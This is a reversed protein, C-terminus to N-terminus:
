SSARARRPAPGPDPGDAPRVRVRRGPQSAPRRPLRRRRRPGPDRRRRRAGAHVRVDVLRDPVRCPRRRRARISGRHLQGRGRALQDLAEGHDGRMWVERFDPRVDVADLGDVAALVPAAVFLVPGTRSMGPFADVGDIVDVTMDIDRGNVFGADTAGAVDVEAGVLVAPVHGDASPTALRALIEDFPVASFSPDWFAVRGFTDPDIAKMRVGQREGDIDVWADRYIGVETSPQALGTPSPSRYALHVATDSGVYMLTKAELTADLSREVTAAYGLM